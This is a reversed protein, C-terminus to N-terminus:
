EGAEKSAPVLGVRIMYEVIQKAVAAVQVAEKFATGSHDGGFRDHLIAQSLGGTEEHLILMWTAMDHNQEGWKLQQRKREADICSGAELPVTKAPLTDCNCESGKYVGCWKNHFKPAVPMGLERCEQASDPNTTETRPTELNGLIDKAMTETAPQQIEFEDHVRMEAAIAEPSLEKEGATPAIREYEALADAMVPIMAPRYQNGDFFGRVAEVLGMVAKNYKIAALEARLESVLSNDRNFLCQMAAFEAQTETLMEVADSYAKKEADLEARLKSNESGIREVIEKRENLVTQIKSTDKLASLEARLRKNELYTEAYEKFKDRLEARLEDIEDQLSKVKDAALKAITENFQRDNHYLWLYDKRQELETRLQTVTEHSNRILNTLRAIEKDRDAIAETIALEAVGIVSDSNKCERKFVEEAIQKPTKM